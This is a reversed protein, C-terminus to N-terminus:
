KILQAFMRWGKTWDLIAALSSTMLIYEDINIFKPQSPAIIIPQETAERRNFEVLGDMVDRFPVGHTEITRNTNGTMLQVQKPVSYNIKVYGHYANRSEEAM